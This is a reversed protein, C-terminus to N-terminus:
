LSLAARLPYLLLIAAHILHFTYRTRYVFPRSVLPWGGCDLFRYDNAVSDETCLYSLLNLSVVFHSLFILIVISKNLFELWLM